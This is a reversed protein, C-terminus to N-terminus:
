HQLVDMIRVLGPRNEPSESLAQELLVAFSTDNRRLAKLVDDLLVGYAFIDTKITRPSGFFLEKAMHRYVLKKANYEAENNVVVCSYTPTSIKCSKGFDIIKPILSSGDRVILINDSKIDGHLYDCSHIHQLAQCVYVAVRMIETGLNISDANGAGESTSGADNLLKRIFYQLTTSRKNSTSGYFKYIILPPKQDVSIGHVIPLYKHPKINIICLVERLVEEILSNRNLAKVAVHMGQYKQLTVEGFAGKGLVPKPSEFSLDARDIKMCNPITSIEGDYLGGTLDAQCANNCVLKAPESEETVQVEKDVKYIKISLNDYYNTNNCRKRRINPFVDRVLLGLEKDGVQVDFQLNLADRIEACPIKM